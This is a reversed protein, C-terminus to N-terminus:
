TLVDQRVVALLKIGEHRGIPETAFIDYIKNDLANPSDNLASAPWIIRDLASINAVAQSWRITFAFQAKAVLQDATFREEGRLADVAAPRESLTTWTEIIEGSPDQTETKTQIAIRQDLKGGRM